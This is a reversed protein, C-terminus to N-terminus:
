GGDAELCATAAAVSLMWFSELTAMACIADEREGYINFMQCLSAPQFTRLWGGTYETLRRRTM